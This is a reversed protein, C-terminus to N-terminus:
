IFQYIFVINLDLVNNLIIIQNKVNLLNHVLELVTIDM